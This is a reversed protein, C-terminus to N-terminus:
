GFAKRAAKGDDVVLALGKQARTSMTKITAADIGLKLAQKPTVVGPKSLEKGMLSGLAVVQDVPVTWEQRGVQAEVAYGPVLEGGRIRYLATEELGSVRAKLLDAARQLTRLELALAAAPLELPTSQTAMDVASLAARQVAECAHRGPCDRCEPNVTCVAGPLLAAEAANRLTNFHARLNSALTSWTRVPGDRHYSRPQVICFEVQLSQDALGDVGLASLIGCCYDLLQWNEFVEVFRHGYKYDFIVLTKGDASVFWCDPTGWNHEHVYPIAVRQEVHLADRGLGHRALAADIAEVYQEAGDIMEESLVVGNPAVQGVAVPRGHLMEFAAWHSASGERAEETEEREPYLAALMVSGACAVWRAASSPALVAHADM